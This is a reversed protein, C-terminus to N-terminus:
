KAMQEDRRTQNVINESAGDRCIFNNETELFIFCDRVNGREDDCQKWKENERTKRM